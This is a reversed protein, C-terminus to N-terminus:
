LRAWLSLDPESAVAVLAGAAANCLDDAGHVGHDVRDRGARSTRRELNLFQHVLKQNDVLRVRAATFLPLADLYIESRPRESTQYVVGHKEFAGSVWGASYRDGEVTSLRYSWLLAVVEATTAEPDLPARKEYVLDLVATNGELHAVAATYSDHAGGSSDIFGRYYVGPIPPRVTIGRDIAHEVTERELFGSLDSRWEALWEASAAEPDQELAVDIISQPITPNFTRTAGRVVLVDPDDKGFHDAWKKFLLGSKRYPSSIIVLMAGPLTAMSPMIANYTDIDPSVTAESAYFAAEDMVCFITSRGRISRFDNTSVVVEAGNSLEFGEATDKTVLQRLMPVKSFYGAIYRLVIKAQVRDCALCLVSAREGPRLIESYNGVAASVALASAVSDKGARRGAIVILEKVRRKPPSRDGAVDHFITLEAPSLARGEAALLVTKWVSWSPGDFWRGLLEPDSILDLVSPQLMVSM